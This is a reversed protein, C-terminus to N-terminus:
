AFVKRHPRASDVGEKVQEWLQLAEETVPARTSLNEENWRAVSAYQEADPASRDYWPFRLGPSVRSLEEAAQAAAEDARRALIAVRGPVPSGKRVGEIAAILLVVARLMPIDRLVGEKSVWEMVEPVSPTDPPADNLLEVLRTFTLAVRMAASAPAQPLNRLAEVDRALGDALPAHTGDVGPQVLLPFATVIEVAADFYNSVASDVTGDSLFPDTLLREFVDAMRKPAWVLKARSAAPLRAVLEALSASSPIFIPSANSM